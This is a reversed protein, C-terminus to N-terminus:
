IKAGYFYYHITDYANVGTGQFTITAGNLTATGTLQFPHLYGSVSDSENFTAAGASQVTVNQLTAYTYVMNNSLVTDAAIRVTNSNSEQIVLQYFTNPYVGGAASIYTGVWRSANDTDKCGAFSFLVVM